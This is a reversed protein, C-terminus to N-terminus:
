NVRLERGTRLTHMALRGRELASRLTANPGPLYGELGEILRLAARLLDYVRDFRTDYRLIRYEGFVM